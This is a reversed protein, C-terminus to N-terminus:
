PTYVNPQADILWKITKGVMGTVRVIIDNGSLVVTATVGVLTVNILSNFLSPAVDLAAAGAARVISAAINITGGLPPATTDYINIRTLLNIHSNVPVTYVTYDGTVAGITTLEGVVRNLLQLTSM